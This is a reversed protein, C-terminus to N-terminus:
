LLNKHVNKNMGSTFDLGKKGELLLGQMVLVMNGFITRDSIFYWPAKFLGLASKVGPDSLTSVSLCPYKEYKVTIKPLM